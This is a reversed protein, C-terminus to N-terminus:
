ISCIDHVQSECPKVIKRAMVSLLIFTANTKVIGIDTGIGILSLTIQYPQLAPIGIHACLSMKLIISLKDEWLLTSKAM